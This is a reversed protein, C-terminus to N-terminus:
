PSDRGRKETWLFEERSVWIRLPSNIRFGEEPWLSPVQGLDALWLSEFHFSPPVEKTTRHYSDAKLHLPHPEAIGCAYSSAWLCLYGMPMKLSLPRPCHGSFNWTCGSVGISVPCSAAWIMLCSNVSPGNALFLNQKELHMWKGPNQKKYSNILNAM